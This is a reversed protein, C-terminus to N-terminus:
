RTRRTYIRRAPEFGDANLVASEIRSMLDLADDVRFRAEREKFFRACSVSRRCSRGQGDSFTM